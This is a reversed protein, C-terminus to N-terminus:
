KLGKSVAYIDNIVIDSLKLVNEPALANTNFRAIYLASNWGAQFQAYHHAIKPLNNTPLRDNVVENMYGNFTGDTAVHVSYLTNYAIRRQTSSCGIIIVSLVILSILKKM